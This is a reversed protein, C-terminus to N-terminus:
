AAHEKGKRFSLAKVTPTEKSRLYRNHVSESQHGLLTKSDLGDTHSDTAAKARIDHIHADLVGAKKCALKWASVVTGYPIQDGSRTHLLTLGKISAHFRKAREVVRRLDDSWEILMRHKTKQQVIEIGEDTLDSYRISLVDGIRQGTLYCLDMIVQTNPSAIRYIASFESDTIYRDRKPMPIKKSDRIVNRDVLQEIFALDMAGIMVVRMINAMGPTSKLKHMVTMMDRATVQHPAFDQFIDSLKKVASKYLKLTNPAVDIDKLYRDLLAPMRETPTSLIGAYAKLADPLSHGLHTWKNAKVYYYAGSRLFVCSPLHKDKKRPRM